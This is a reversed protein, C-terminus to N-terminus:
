LFSDNQEEGNIPSISCIKYNLKILWDVRIKGLVIRTNTPMGDPGLAKNKKMKALATKVEIRSIKDIM